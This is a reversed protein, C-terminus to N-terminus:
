VPDGEPLGRPRQAGFQAGGASIVRDSRHTDYVNALRRTVERMCSDGAAPRDIGYVSKPFDLPEQVAWIRDHEGPPLIEAPDGVAVWGIPVTAGPALQTRLHVVGNIRVESRAGLRAGHFISAGTAVFVESEITCGVVHAHPGILVHDALSTSYRGTSRIVANEFVMCYQGIEIAGGEAVLCAGHLVRCHAGIRVDGCVTATPAVFATEHIQPSRGSHEGLM